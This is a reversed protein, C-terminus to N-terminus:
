YIRVIKVFGSFESQHDILIQKEKKFTKQLYWNFISIFTYSVSGSDNKGGAFSTQSPLTKVRTQRDVPPTTDWCAKCTELGVGLPRPTTELGVGPSTDWCASLCVGGILRNVFRIIPIKIDAFRSFPLKTVFLRRFAMQGIVSLNLRLRFGLHKLNM